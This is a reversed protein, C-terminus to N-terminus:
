VKRSNNVIKKSYKRIADFDIYYAMNVNISTTNMNNVNWELRLDKFKEKLYNGIDNHFEKLINFGNEIYLDNRETKENNITLIPICSPKFIITISEPQTFTKISCPIQNLLFSSFKEILSDLQASAKRAANEIESSLHIM